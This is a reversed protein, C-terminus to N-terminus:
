VSWTRGTKISSICSLSVRYTQAVDKLSTSKILERINGVDYETLKANSHVEGINKRLVRTSHLQNEVKDVWELNECINNTKVGDKHNVFIKGAITPIFALAVLRHVYQKKQPSNVDVYLYGNKNLSNTLVFQQYFHTRGDKYLVTKPLAKVRGLSSIQYGPLGVLDTWLEESDGTM